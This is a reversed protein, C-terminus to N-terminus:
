FKSLLRKLELVYGRRLEHLYRERDKKPARDFMSDFLRTERVIAARLKKIDREIPWRLFKLKHAIKGKFTKTKQKLRGVLTETFEPITYETPIPLAATFVKLLRTTEKIGNYLLEPDKKFFISYNEFFVPIIKQLLQKRIELEHELGLSEPKRDGLEIRFRLPLLNEEILADFVASLNTSFREETESNNLIPKLLYLVDRALEKKYEDEKFFYQKERLFEHFTKHKESPTSAHFERLLAIEEKKAGLTKSSLNRTRERYNLQPKGRPVMKFVLSYYTNFINM